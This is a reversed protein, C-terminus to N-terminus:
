SSVWSVPFSLGVFFAVVTAGCLGGLLISLMMGVVVALREGAV